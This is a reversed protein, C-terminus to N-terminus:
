ILFCHLIAEVEFATAKECGDWRFFSM